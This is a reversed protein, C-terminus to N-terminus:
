KRRRTLWVSIGSIMMFFPMLICSAFTIIRMRQETIDFTSEDAAKPRIAILDEEKALWSLMNQFLDADLGFTRLGNAAFDSDGVVVMRFEPGKKEAEGEAPAPAKADTAKGTIALALSLPGKRDAKENLKLQNGEVNSEFSAPSTSFLSTVTLGDPIKAAKEVPTAIAFISMERADRTIEHSRDYTTVIPTLPNGQALQQLRNREVVAKRQNWAVGHKALFPQITKTSDPELMVLLKGGRRLYNELETLEHNIFDKRPGAIVLIEADAPIKDKEVLNIEEVLFRGVGLTDRMGTYGERSNDNILREGHGTVFYIKKKEGKEVQIIANTLKEELKPDDPGSLNEVKASRTDSEVVVTGVTKIDYKKVAMPDKDVDVFEKKIHKSYFAYKDFVREFESKQMPNIFTRLRVERSLGKLVKVTQDSLTNLKNKTVDIKVDHNMAILNLTVVIALVVGTMLLSNLGYRTTRRSFSHKISGRGIWAGGAFCAAALALSVQWLLPTGSVLYATIGATVFLVLSATQLTVRLKDQTMM